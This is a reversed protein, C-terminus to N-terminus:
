SYIEEIYRKLEDTMVAEGDKNAETLIVKLNALRQEKARLREYDSLKITVTGEM